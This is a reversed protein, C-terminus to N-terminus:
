RRCREVLERRPTEPLTQFPDFCITGDRVPLKVLKRAFFYCTICALNWGALFCVAEHLIM